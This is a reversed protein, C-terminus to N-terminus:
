EFLKQLAGIDSCLHKLLFNDNYIGNTVQGRSLMDSKKLKKMAFIEGTSKFRCLRVQMLLGSLKLFYEVLIQKMLTWVFMSETM